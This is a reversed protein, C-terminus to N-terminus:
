PVPHKSNIGFRARRKLTMVNSKFILIEASLVWRISPYPGIAAFGEAVKKAKM